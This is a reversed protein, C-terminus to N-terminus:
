AAVVRAVGTQRELLRMYSEFLAHKQPKGEAAASVRAEVVGHDSLAKIVSAMEDVTTAPRVLLMAAETADIEAASIPARGGKVLAELVSRGKQPGQRKILRSITSVAASDGIDVRMNTNILKLNVGARRCANVVDLADPDGAACKARWIDMPTMVIRNKNHSVFSDARELMSAAGVVFIPIAELGLTAAAIATHQGDICHLGDGTDVVIPPKMKRWAFEAVMKGILSRSRKTLDRQYTEDVLLEQPAVWRLEPRQGLQIPERDAALLEHM